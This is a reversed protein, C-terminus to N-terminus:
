EIKDCSIKWFPFVITQSTDVWEGIWEFGKEDIDYFTLRSFGANGQPSTQPKFLIIKEGEKNGTWYSLPATSRGTSYYHVNWRASDADYQRISGSHKGDSKLTKDQVAMGNGIYEFTWYMSVPDQWTGDPNASQSKCKCKGIMPQYDRIEKPAEPNPRGYPFEKSPEYQFESQALLNTSIALTVLLFLAKM